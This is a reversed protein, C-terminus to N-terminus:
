RATLVHTSKGNRKGDFIFAVSQEKEVKWSLSFTGEDFSVNYYTIPGHGTAATEGTVARIGDSTLCIGRLVTTQDASPIIKEAQALGSPLICLGLLFGVTLVRM